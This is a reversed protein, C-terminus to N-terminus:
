ASLSESAGIGPNKRKCGHKEPTSKSTTVATGPDFSSSTAEFTAGRCWLINPSSSMEAEILLTLAPRSVPSLVPSTPAGCPLKPNLHYRHYQHASILLIAHTSQLHCTQDTRALPPIMPRKGVPLSFGVLSRRLLVTLSDASSTRAIADRGSLSARSTKSRRARQRLSDLVEGILSYGRKSFLVCWQGAGM